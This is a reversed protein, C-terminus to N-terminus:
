TGGIARLYALWAAWADRALLDSPAADRIQNLSMQGLPDAARVAALFRARPSM